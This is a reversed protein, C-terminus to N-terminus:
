DRLILFCPFYLVYSFVKPVDRMVNLKVPRVYDANKGLPVRLLIINPTLTKLVRVRKLSTDGAANVM